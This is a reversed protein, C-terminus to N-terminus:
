MGLMYGPRLVAVYQAIPIANVSVVRNWDEVSIETAPSMAATGANNVMIDLRGLTKVTDNVLANVEDPKSVDCQFSRAKVGLLRLDQAVEELRDMRRAAVEVNAGAEALATAFTIGLGSSAGTVVAVKGKLSFMDKVLM